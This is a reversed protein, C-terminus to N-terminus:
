LKAEIGGVKKTEPPESEEELPFYGVTKNHLFLKGEKIPGRYFRLVTITGPAPICLELYEKCIQAHHYDRTFIGVRHEPNGFLYSIGASILEYDAPSIDSSPEEFSLSEPSCYVQLNKTVKNVIHILRNLLTLSFTTKPHFTPGLAPPYEGPDEEIQHKWYEKRAKIELHLKRYSSFTTKTSCFKRRKKLIMQFSKLEEVVGPTTYVQPLPIVEQALNSWHTLSNELETRILELESASDPDNFNRRGSTGHIFSSDLLAFDYEKLLMSVDVPYM